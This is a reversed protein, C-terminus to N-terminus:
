AGGFITAARAVCGGDGPLLRAAARGRQSRTAASPTLWRSSPRTRASRGLPRSCAIPRECGGGAAGFPGARLGHRGALQDLRNLGEIARTRWRADLGCRHGTASRRPARRPAQRGHLLLAGRRIVLLGYNRSACPAGIVAKMRRGLSGCRPAIPVGLAESVESLLGPLTFVSSSVALYFAGSRTACYREVARTKGRGSPGVITVIDAEAQAYALAGMIQEAVGTDAFRDLGAAALSRKAIEAQTELWRAVLVEIARNNGTYVGKLWRSITSESRGIGAAAQGISLGAAELHAKFAARLDPQAAAADLQTVKGM